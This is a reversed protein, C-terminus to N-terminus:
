TVMTYNNNGMPAAREGIKWSCVKAESGKTGEGAGIMRLTGQSCAGSPYDAWTRKWLLSRYGQVLASWAVWIGLLLRSVAWPQAAWRIPTTYHPEGYGQNQLKRPSLFSSEPASFKLAQRSTNIRAGLVWELEGSRLLPLILMRKTHKLIDGVHPQRRKWLSCNEFGFYIFWYLLYLQISHFSFFWILSSM